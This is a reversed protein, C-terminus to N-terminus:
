KATVTANNLIANIYNLLTQENTRSPM